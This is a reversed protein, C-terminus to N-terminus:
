LIGGYWKSALPSLCLTLISTGPYTDQPRDWIWILWYSPYLSQYYLSPIRPNTCRPDCPRQLFVFFFFENSECKVWNRVSLYTQRLTVCPFLWTKNYLFIPPTDFCLLPYPHPSFLVSWTPHRYNRFLFFSSHLCRDQCLCGAWQLIFLCPMISIFKEDTKLLLNWTLVMM